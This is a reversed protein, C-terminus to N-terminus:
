EKGSLRQFIGKEEARIHNGIVCRDSGIFWLVDSTQKVFITLVM